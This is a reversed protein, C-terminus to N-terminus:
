ISGLLKKIDHVHARGVGGRGQLVVVGDGEVLGVAVPLGVKHGEEVDRAEPARLHQAHDVVHPAIRVRNVHRQGRDVLVKEGLV